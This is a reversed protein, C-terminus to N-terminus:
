RSTASWATTDGSEFGDAFIALGYHVTAGHAAAPMTCTNVEARSADQDTGSWSSVSWTPDPAATLTILEGAHYEGAGCGPSSALDPVPDAGMGTHSMALAYCPPPGLRASWVSGGATGAYLMRPEAPSAILERITLNGLGDNFPTWVGGGAHKLVGDSATGVYVEGPTASTDVTVSDPRSPLGPIEAWTAGDWRFLTTETTVYVDSNSDVAIDTVNGSFPASSITTWTAGGNASRFVYGSQRTGRYVVGPLNPDGALTTTWIPGADIWSTGGNNTRYVGAAGGVSGGVAVLLIDSDNPDVWLDTVGVSQGGGISLFTIDTWNAGGDTSKYVRLSTTYGRGQGAWLTAPNSPDYTVADADFPGATLDNWTTGTSPSESLFSSAAAALVTGSATPHVDVDTVDAATLGGNTAAWTAGGDDSQFVGAGPYASSVHGYDRPDILLSSPAARPGVSLTQWVGGGDTSKYVSGSGSRTGVFVLDPDGPAVALSWPPNSYVWPADTASWTVGRDTSKFLDDVLGGPATAYLVPPTAGTETMTLATVEESNWPDAGLHSTSWTFGGDTSKWFGDANYWPSYNWPEGTAYVISADQPDVHVVEIAGTGEALVEQWTEGGDPSRFVAVIEEPWATFRWGTGAFVIQPDTPDIAISNVRADALGKHTWTRGGDTSRYIGDEETGAFLVAASDPSVALSRATLDPFGTRAWIGGDDASKYIGVKAGAYLVDADSRARSLHHLVGTEPGGTTWYGTDLTTYDVSATHAAAPMTMLNTLAGSSDYDTGTWGGVRSGADPMALLGIADGEAYSGAPCGPTNAPSAAPDSGPGSHALTLPYCASPVEAYNVQVSHDGAPMTLTNVTSTSADDDTGSWSGVSWGAAPDATLGISEGALYTGPACGASSPPAAVPDAGAGTHGLTLDSCVLVYDVSAAHAADPMTVTNTAATSADDDTGNWGGVTWGPDPDATLAVQAAPYYEGPDCGPSSAPSATPDTGMGTHGLTLAHCEAPGESLARFANVRGYGTEADWGAALLDDATALLRAEVETATLTPELGLLLGAVGAVVPAASSTGNFDYYYDGGDYGATGGIDTTYMHVGPATLDLEAGYNSGWWHEGDCSAPAKREDCPSLAGVALVTSLTAPYNVPGNANGASFVVVSGLGGRGSTKAGAIADTIVTAPSGGGWSNSLVDAGNAVAWGIGDALWSDQTVWGGSGDGYGVRVPLVKAERAIGAVGIANDTLAAAVGACATGHADDGTAGGGSTGDTADYGPLTKAALDPHSLDLGEDIVAVTITDSGHSVGWAEPAMVDAGDVGWLQQNNALSWQLHDYTDSTLEQYGGTIKEIVVEDVYVGEFDIVEDSQFAIGVWVQPEGRLDGLTHVRTLDFGFNRWGGAAGTVWDGSWQYGSFNTGNVSALIMFYDFGSETSVWAQLDVRADLADALSFPGYVMWSNRDAGYPGPPSVASGVCYGSWSGAYSRHNVDSWTPTGYLTWDNPFLGEFGETKLTTRSVPARTEAPPGASAKGPLVASAPEVVRYRAAGKELITDPALLTGDPAIVTRGERHEPRRDMLRVFDPHAFLVEPLAHYANATELATGAAVRLVQVGDRWELVRVPEVGHRSHIEAIRQASVGPAFRAVFEDTVIMLAGPAAFVPLTRDVAPLARIRDILERRAAESLDGRWRYVALAQGELRRVESDDIAAPFLAALNTELGAELRVAFHRASPQLPIKLGDSHYYLETEAAAPMAAVLLVLLVASFSAWGAAARSERRPTRM